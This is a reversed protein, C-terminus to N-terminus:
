SLYELIKQIIKEGDEPSKKCLWLVNVNSGEFLFSIWNEIRTEVLDNPVPLQTSPDIPVGMISVGKGFNRRTDL